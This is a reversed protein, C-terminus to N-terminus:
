WLCVNYACAVVHAIDIDTKINKEYIRLREKSIKTFILRSSRADQCHTDFDQCEGSM